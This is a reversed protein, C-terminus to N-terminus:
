AAALGAAPSARGGSVRVPGAWLRRWGARAVSAQPVTPRRGADRRGPPQVAVAAERPEPTQWAAGRTYTRGDLDIALHDFGSAALRALAEGRALMAITAQAGAQMASPAAVSVHRWSSVPWGSRPDLLDCYRRSGVVIAHADDTSTSLGGRSVPVTAVADQPRRPDRLAFCWPRGDPQPGVVHVDRGGIEVHGHRVGLSSLLTAARDVAHGRVLAGLDLAMGAQPLRVLAGHREVRRWGVSRQAAQVEQWLPLDAVDFNWARRLAGVTPDFLGGSARHLRDAEDLLALCEDDVRQAAGGAHRNLRAVDGEPAQPGFKREIRLVEDIATAADVWAAEATAAALVVHCPTGFAEFPIRHLPM